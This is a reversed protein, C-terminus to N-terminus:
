KNKFKQQYKQPMFAIMQSIHMDTMNEIKIDKRGTNLCRYEIIKDCIEVCKDYKNLSFACQFMDYYYREMLLPIENFYKKVIELIKGCLQYGKKPNTQAIIPIEKDLKTYEKIIKEFKIKYEDDDDNDDDGICCKCTCEFGFGQKLRYKRNNFDTKDGNFGIYNACIEDGKNITCVATVVEIEKEYDWYWSCNPLCSHNIRSIISFIGSLDKTGNKFDPLSISNRDFIHWILNKLKTNPKHSLTLYIDQNDPTLERFKMDVVPGCQALKDSLTFLPKEKCIVTGRQITQKAILGYGKGPIHKITFLDYDTQIKDEISLNPNDNSNSKVDETDVDTNTNTTKKPKKSNKFNKSTERNITLKQCQKKHGNKWHKVQCDRNCYYVKKCQSCRSTAGSKNCGACNKVNTDFLTSMSKIQYNDHFM